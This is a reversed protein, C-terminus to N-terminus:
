EIGVEKLSTQAPGDIINGDIDYRSGHCPCDWSKEDPNWELQCGLHRCRPIVAHIRGSEDKYVGAKHGDFEVTSGHNEPLSSVSKLPITLATKLLGKSSKLGDEMLRKFSASMVFRQPSFVESFPSSGMTILESILMASAMSGTMGWKNFGTAVYVNEESSSFRGIYPVGDLTMCDQNSWETVIRCAPWLQKATKHLKEYRGGESNEGTRHNGGGLLLIDNYSRLSIGTDKDIGYYMADTHMANKLATVYSREQHMRMFYYGPSNVFPYHCALIIYEAKVSGHETNITNSEINLVRTNEYIKLPTSIAKIFKIPNFQAQNKFYLAASVDFPLDAKDAYVSDIGLKQAAKAEKEITDANESSYICAPLMEFDCDISHQKVLQAYREVANQNALYYQRALDEGFKEILRDYIAAHQSTIKATTRATSGGCIRDAELIVTDIGCSQLHYGTLIGAMGAGIIAAQATIDNNLRERKPIDATGDWIPHM